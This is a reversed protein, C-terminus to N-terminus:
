FPTRMAHLIEQHEQNSEASPEAFSNEGSHTVHQLVMRDNSLSEQEMPDLERDVYTELQYHRTGTEENVIENLESLNSAPNEEDDGGSSTSENGTDHPVNNTDIWDLQKFLFAIINILDMKTVSDHMDKGSAMQYIVWMQSDQLGSMLVSLAKFKLNMKM